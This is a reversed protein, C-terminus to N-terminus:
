GINQLLGAIFNQFNCFKVMHRILNKREGGVQGKQIQIQWPRAAKLDAPFELLFAGDRNQNERGPVLHPIFQMRQFQSGIFIQCFRAPFFPKQCPYGIHHFSILATGIQQFAGSKQQVPLSVSQVDMVARNDKCFILSLQQFYEQVM